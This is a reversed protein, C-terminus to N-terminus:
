FAYKVCAWGYPKNAYQCGPIINHIDLCCFFPPDNNGIDWGIAGTCNPLKGNAQKQFYAMMYTIM